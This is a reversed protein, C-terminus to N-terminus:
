TNDRIRKLEKYITSKGVQLMESVIKVDNNYKEMYHTIILQIYSRLSSEKKFLFATSGEINFSIDTKQITTSDANVASREVVAKLERVNGPYGYEKLKHMAESSFQMKPMENQKSFEELFHKALIPIDKSRERLTPSNIPLGIIRYYFDHRFDGGEIEKILNKHTATILRFNSKIKSNGGIRSFTNDQLARLLKVQTDLPMDGIEDLFLTGNNAEELRGIRREQANTFAGREHGFLETEILGKPIAAVNITVFPGDKFNSNYHIAKAIVEKGSGTEGTISVPISSQAAKDILKYLQKIQPSNGLILAEKSYLSDTKQHSLIKSLTIKRQKRYGILFSWIKNEVDEEKTFYAIPKLEMLMIAIKVDSQDSLIIIDTLPARERITPIFHFADKDGVIYDVIVLDPKTNLEKLFTKYNSTIVVEDEPNRGLFFQLRKAYKIDSQFINIKM